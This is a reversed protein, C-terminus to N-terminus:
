DNSVCVVNERLRKQAPEALRPDAESAASETRQRVYRAFIHAGNYPTHHASACMGLV